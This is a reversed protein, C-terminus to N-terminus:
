SITGLTLNAVSFLTWKTLFARTRTLSAGGGGGSTNSADTSKSVFRSFANILLTIGITLFTIIVSCQSGAVIKGARITFRIVEIIKLWVQAFNTMGWALSAVSGVLIVTSRAHSPLNKIYIHTNLETLLIM